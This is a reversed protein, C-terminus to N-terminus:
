LSRIPHRRYLALVRPLGLRRVGAAGRDDEHAEHSGPFGDRSAGRSGGAHIRDLRVLQELSLEPHRDGPEEPPSALLLEAAELLRLHPLQELVGIATHDRESSARHARHPHSLREVAV